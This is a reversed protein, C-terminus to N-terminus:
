LAVFPSQISLRNFAEIPTMFELVKRPRNNLREEIQLLNDDNIQDFSM